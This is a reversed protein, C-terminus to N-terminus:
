HLESLVDSLINFEASLPQEDMAPRGDHFFVSLEAQFPRYIMLEIDLGNRHWELQVSGGNAPVFSPLPSHYSMVSKLVSRVYAAMGLSIPGSNPGNWGRRLAALDRLRKDAKDEWDAPSRLDLDVAALRHQAPLGGDVQMGWSVPLEKAYELTQLSM